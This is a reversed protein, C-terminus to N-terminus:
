FQHSSASFAGKNCSITEGRLWLPFLFHRPSLPSPWPGGGRVAQWAMELFFDAPFSTTESHGLYVSYPIRIYTCYTNGLRPAGPSPFPPETSICAVRRLFCGGSFLGSTWHGQLHFQLGQPFSPLIRGRSLDHLLQGTPVRPPRAHTCTWPKWATRVACPVAGTSNVSVSPWGPSMPHTMAEGVVCLKAATWAEPLWTACVAQQVWPAQRETGSVTTQLIRLICLTM